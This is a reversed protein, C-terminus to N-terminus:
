SVKAFNKWITEHDGGVKEAGSQFQAEDNGDDVKLEAGGTNRM